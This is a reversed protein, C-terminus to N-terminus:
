QYQSKHGVWGYRTFEKRHSQEWEMVLVAQSVNVDLFGVLMLYQSAYIVPSYKRGRQHAALRSSM